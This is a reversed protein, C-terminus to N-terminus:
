CSPWWGTTLYTHLKRLWSYQPERDRRDSERMIAVALAEVMDQISGALAEVTAQAGRVTREHRALLRQEAALEQLEDESASDDALLWTSM